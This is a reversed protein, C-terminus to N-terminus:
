NSIFRFFITRHQNSFSIKSKKIIRHYIKKIFLPLQELIKSKLVTTNINKSDPILFKDLFPKANSKSHYVMSPQNVEIELFELGVQDGILKLSKTTYWFLHLPPLETLWIADTQFDYKRPTTLIIEGDKNLLRKLKNLFGIPSTVHEIVETAIIIDFKEDLDNIDIARFINGFAQVAKDVADSSLDVGIIDYGIQSLAYTFYGLGSGVELIKFDQIGDISSLYKYVYLYTDEKKTLYNIAKDSNLEQIENFYRLYRDYGAVYSSHKYISEYIMGLNEVDGSAFQLGCVNCQFINYHTEEIYGNLESVFYTNSFCSPCNTKTM